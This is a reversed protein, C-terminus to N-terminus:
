KLIERVTAQVLIEMTDIIESNQIHPTILQLDTCALLITKPGQDLLGKTIKLLKERDEGDQRSHVLHNIIEGMQNQDEEVPSKVKIGNSTLVEEYLRKRITSSTALLGVETVKNSNLRSLTEDVISLVPVKVSERIQNIFIHVSNCPIVIFDAGGKELRKAADLLYPLYKEEGQSNKIFEEEIQYPLPVNWILM